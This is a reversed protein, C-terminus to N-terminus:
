IYRAYKYERKRKIRATLWWKCGVFQNILADLFQYKPMANIRLKVNNCRKLGIITM